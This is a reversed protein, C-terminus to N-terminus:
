PTFDHILEIFDAPRESGSVHGTDLEVYTSGPIAAHIARANEVPVLADRTAGVVLTPAQVRPLLHRIDVRRDLDIQRLRNPNPQFYTGLQELEDPTLSNLHRRSFGTLMAFRAFADPTRALSLWVDLATRLYADEGDAWGSIPILRRVLEPRTAALSLVVVAGLSFGVLDVPAKGSDEIVAALQRTLDEITLPGGDDEALDSGGLDPLIVTNRGTFHGTTDDWTTSGPGTGHVLVLGPGDGATRYAVRTGSVTLHRTM